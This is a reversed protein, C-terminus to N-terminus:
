RHPLLRSHAAPGDQAIPEGLEALVHTSTM